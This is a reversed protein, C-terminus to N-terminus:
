AVCDRFFPNFFQIKRLKSCEGKTVDVVTDHVVTVHVM